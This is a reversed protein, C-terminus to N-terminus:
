HGTQRLSPGVYFLLNYFIIRDGQRTVLYRVDVCSKKITCLARSRSVLALGAPRRLVVLLVRLNAVGSIGNLYNKMILLRLDLFSRVNPGLLYAVIGKGHPWSLPLIISPGTFIQVITLPGATLRPCVSTVLQPKGNVFVPLLKDTLNHPIFTHDDINEM